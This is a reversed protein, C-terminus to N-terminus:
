TSRLKEASKDLKEKQKLDHTIEGEGLSDQAQHRELIRQSARRL